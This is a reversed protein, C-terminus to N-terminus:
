SRYIRKGEEGYRRTETRRTERNETRKPQLETIYYLSNHNSNSICKKKVKRLAVLETAIFRIDCEYVKVLTEDLIFM